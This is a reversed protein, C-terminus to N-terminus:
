FHNTNRYRSEVHAVRLVCCYVNVLYIKQHTHLIEFSILNRRFLKQTEMHM